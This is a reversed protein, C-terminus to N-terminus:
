GDRRYTGAIIEDVVELADREIVGSAFGADLLAQVRAVDARYARRDQEALARLYAASGGIGADAARADLHQELEQSLDVSIHAM